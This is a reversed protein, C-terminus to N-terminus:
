ALGVDAEAEMQVTVRVPSGRSFDPPGFFQAFLADYVDIQEPRSLLTARGAWYLEGPPLLAAARSFSAVRDPGVALGAARLTRGFRVLTEVPDSGSLTMAQVYQRLSTSTERIWAGYM